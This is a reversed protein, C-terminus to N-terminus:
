MLFQLGTEPTSHGKPYPWETLLIPHGQPSSGVKEWIFAKLRTLEGLPALDRWVSCACALIETAQSPCSIMVRSVKKGYLRATFNARQLSPPPPAGPDRALKEGYLCPRLCFISKAVACSQPLPRNLSAKKKKKATSQKIISTFKINQCKQQLGPRRHSDFYVAIHKRM